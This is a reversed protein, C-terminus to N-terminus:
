KIADALVFIPLYMAMLFVCPLALTLVIAFGMRIARGTQAVNRLLGEGVILSPISGLAVPFWPQLCLTTLTPLPGGFDGFMKAFTPGVVLGAAASWILSFAAFTLGVADFVTFSPLPSPLGNSTPLHSTAQM